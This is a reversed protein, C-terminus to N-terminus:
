LGENVVTVTLPGCGLQPKKIRAGELKTKKGVVLNLDKTRAVGHFGSWSRSTDHSHFCSPKLTSSKSFLYRTSQPPLSIRFLYWIGIYKNPPGGEWYYHGGPNNCKKYPIGIYLGENGSNSPFPVVWHTQLSPAMFTGEKPPTPLIFM